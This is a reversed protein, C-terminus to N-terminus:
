DIEEVKPMSAGKAGGGATQEKMLNMLETAKQQYEEATKSTGNKMWSEIEAAKAGLAPALKGEGVQGQIGYVLSELENQAMKLRYLEEDQEKYQEAERVMKEITKSDLKGTNTITIHAEKGTNQDKATVTLIGNADLDYSVEIQPVGRPAPAIGDLDFRGLLNNDKTLKREGEYVRITVAPQNDAGTTYVKTKRTPITTNRPIIPDMLTGNVEIGLTLPNVDLLIMQKTKDDQAGTLVAAQVAAGYAIAEDPNITKCLEKGGFFDQLLKQVKPIRTSGGVIVVEDIQSKDLKADRLATEVPDL